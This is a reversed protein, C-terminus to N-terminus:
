LTYITDVFYNLLETLLNDNRKDEQIEACPTHHEPAGETIVAWVKEQSVKKFPDTSMRNVWIYDWILPTTASCIVNTESLSPLLKFICKSKQLRYKIDQGTSFYKQRKMFQFTVNVLYFCSPLSFYTVVFFIHQNIYKNHALCISIYKFINKNSIFAYPTIYHLLFKIVLM